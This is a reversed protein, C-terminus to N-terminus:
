KRRRRGLLGAAVVAFLSLGGLTQKLPPRAPGVACLGGAAGGSPDGQRYTDYFSFTQLPTGFGVPSESPNGSEDVAVVAAAYTIGNQLVAIRASTAGASLLPSCVFTPDLGEVGTGTRASPCSVFAATFPGTAGGGATATETFVQYQDARSCLIQYGALDSASVATWGLVLAESGPQITAGAPAPPPALDVITEDPVSLDIEGDGDFDFNVNIVQTFAMGNPAVCSGSAGGDATPVGYSVSLQQADTPFTLQTQSLFTVVSETDLLKCTGLPTGTAVADRTKCGSGLVISVTGTQATVAARKGLGSQLLAVNIAVPVQCNCRALNFFRSEDATTLRNGDPGNIAVFFDDGVFPQAAGSTGGTGTTGGTGATQAQARSGGVVISTGLAAMALISRLPRSELM